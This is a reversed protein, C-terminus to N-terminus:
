KKSPTCGADVFMDAIMMWETSEIRYSDFANEMRKQNTKWKKTTAITMAHASQAAAAAAVVLGKKRKEIMKDFAAIEVNSKKRKM